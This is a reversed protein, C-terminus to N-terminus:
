YVYATRAQNYVANGVSNFDRSEKPTAKVPKKNALTIYYISDSPAKDPNWSFYLYQGDQSWQPSSPSAGIWNPDRMIKEVTLKNQQSFCHVTAALFLLPLTLKPM